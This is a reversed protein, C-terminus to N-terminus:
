EQPPLEFFQSLPMLLKADPKVHVARCLRLYERIFSAMLDDHTQPRIMFAPSLTTLAEHAHGLAANAGTVDETRQALVMLSMALKPTFADPRQRALERYLDAARQAAQLAPERQDRESLRNALNNLSM